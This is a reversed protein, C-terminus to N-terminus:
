LGRCFLHSGLRRLIAPSEFEPGFEGLSSRGSRASWYLSDECHIGISTASIVERRARRADVLADAARETARLDEERNGRTREDYLEEYLRHVCWPRDLDSDLLGEVRARLAPPESTASSAM